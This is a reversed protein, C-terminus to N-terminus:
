GARVLLEPAPPCLPRGLCVAPNEPGTPGIVVEFSGQGILEVTDGARRLMEGLLEDHLLRGVGAVAWLPVSAERAAQALGSTGASALVGSPGAALAEVIVVAAGEVAEEAEDPEWGSVESVHAEFRRVEARRGPSPGVVRVVAWPLCSFAELVTETPCTVVVAEGDGFRGSLADALLGATPDSVLEDVVRRAARDPDPAVLLTAAVWWLPGATVHSEILRRCATVVAAPEDMALESITWAAEAGLTAPAEDSARAIWRLREIPHM